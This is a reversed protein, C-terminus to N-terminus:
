LRPRYSPNWGSSSFNDLELALHQIEDTHLSAKPTWPGPLFRNNAGHTPAPRRLYLTDNGENFFAPSMIGKEKAEKKHRNMFKNIYSLIDKKSQHFLDEDFGSMAEDYSDDPDMSAAFLDM